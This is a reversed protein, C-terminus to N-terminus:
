ICIDTLRRERPRKLVLTKALDDHLAQRKANHPIM